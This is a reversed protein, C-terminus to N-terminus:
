FVAYILTLNVNQKGGTFTVPSLGGQGDFGFAYLKNKEVAVVTYHGPPIDAQFFGDDDTDVEKILQTTLSDYLGNSVRPIAQSQLTYSYIKITRKVPCTKCTSHAPPIVPMCNGEMLALTGWIGNTISVKKANDAYTQQIDCGTQTASEKHCSWLILTIILLGPLRKMLKKKIVIITAFVNRSFQM